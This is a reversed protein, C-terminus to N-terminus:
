DNEDLEILDDLAYDRSAKNGLIEKLEMPSIGSGPRKATLNKKTFPTGRKIDMAAVLSKRAVLRNKKESKTVHKEKSGLILEIDRISQVMKKLEAPELSAKHDPGKMSRSLTFHKEIISAGMSVAAIPVLIGLTHDSYGINKNFTDKLTKLVRLNVEEFPAPYETTCHLLTIKSEHLGNSELVNIASAIEDINSMGTSLITSQNYSGVLELLPLNTIEGSPVKFIGLDLTNLFKISSLDFGTSLFNIKKHDCYDILDYHNEKSLELSRVMELQTQHVGTNKLQYSAQPAIQSIVEEPNFTQFKVYDAGAESAVDILEKAIGMDGNHNVGAEAIILTKPTPQILQM